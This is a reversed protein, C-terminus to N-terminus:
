QLPVPPEPSFVAGRDHRLRVLMMQVLNNTLPFGQLRMVQTLAEEALHLLANCQDKRDRGQLRYLFVRLAEETLQEQSKAPTAVRKQEKAM